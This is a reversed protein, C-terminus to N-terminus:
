RHTTGWRIEEVFEISNGDPDRIMVTRATRSIMAPGPDIGMERLSSIQRELSTVALTAIGSGALEELQYVQLWGGREFKWEAVEPMPSSDALRGFLKQYWGVSIALDKVALSELTHPTSM